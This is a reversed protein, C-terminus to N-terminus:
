TTSLRIVVGHTRRTAILPMVVALSAPPGLARVVVSRTFIPRMWSRAVYPAYLLLGCGLGRRTSGCARRKPRECQLAPSPTALPSDILFDQGIGPLHPYIPSHDRCPHFSFSHITVFLLFFFSLKPRKSMARFHYHCSQECSKKNKKHETQQPCCVSALIQDM